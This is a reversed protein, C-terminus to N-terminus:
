PKNVSPTRRLPIIDGHGQRSIQPQEPARRLTLSGGGPFDAFGPFMAVRACGFFRPHRLMSREPQFCLKRDPTLRVLTFRRSALPTRQLTCARTPNLGCPSATTSSRVYHLAAARVTRSYSDATQYDGYRPTTHPDISWNMPAGNILSVSFDSSNLGDEYVLRGRVTVQRYRRRKRFQGM